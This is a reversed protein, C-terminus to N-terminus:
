VEKKVTKKSLQKTMNKILKENGIEADNSKIEKYIGDLDPITIEIQAINKEGQEVSIIEYSIEEHFANSFDETLEDVSDSEGKSCASCCIMVILTILLGLRKM